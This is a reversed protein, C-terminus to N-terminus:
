AESARREICRRAACPPLEARRLAAAALAGLAASDHLAHSTAADKCGRYAAFRVQVNIDKWGPIRCVARLINLTMPGPSIGDVHAAIIQMGELRRRWNGDMVSQTGAGGIADTLLAAASEKSMSAAGKSEVDAAEVGSPCLVQRQQPMCVILAKEALLCCVCRASHANFIVACALASCRIYRYLRCM